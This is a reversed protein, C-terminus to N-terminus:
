RKTWLVVVGCSSDYQIPAGAPGAYAELAGVDEPAILNIDQHQFGDIVVNVDCSGRLRYNRSSIVKADFGAGIVQFGPMNRLLDSTELANRKEIEQETLYRGFGKARGEFERYRSRRAVVRISDLSVIRTLTVTVDAAKGTRLEVPTEGLRYGVRRTQLLQTGAPLNSLTFRGLSDTRASGAAGSIRAQANALPRGDPGRVVGTLTATGALPALPLSDADAARALSDLMVISRSGSASFSLRRLVLGADEPVVFRLPSGIRGGHQVQVLLYTDTPVGCLRYRGLSDVAVTGGHQETVPQLTARDVSLTSWSVAVQAGLLPADTDADTVTGVAAGQGKSLTLGPCGAARLTMGSPIAFDARAHEGEALTIEHAPLFLELSDLFGTTFDVSYRGATLTDFRFHGKADAAMSYFQSPEPSLRTLTVVAGAAPRAHVSDTIDGEIRGEHRQAHLTAPLLLAAALL